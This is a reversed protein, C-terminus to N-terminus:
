LLSYTSEAENNFSRRERRASISDLGLSLTSRSTAEKRPSRNHRILGPDNIELMVDRKLNLLCNGNVVSHTLDLGMGIYSNSLVSSNEVVTGFDIESDSEVNSCRTILCQEEIRTASGLFAPAVIRARKHVQAGEGMWVGPRVEFGQPRMRCRSTLSDVVLGRLDRLHELRRVYGSIPYPNTQPSRLTALVDNSGNVSDVSVVWFDLAGKGDFVRTVAQQHARHFQLADMFDFEAYLSARAVISAEIGSEKYAALTRAVAGMLDEAWVPALETVSQEIEVGRPAFKEDIVLTTEDVGIRRFESTMRTVISSGLIEICALPLEHQQESAQTGSVASEANAPPKRSDKLERTVLVIAGLM